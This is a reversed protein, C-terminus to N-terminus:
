IDAYSIKNDIIYVVNLNNALAELQISPNKVDLTQCVLDLRAQQQNEDLDDGLPHRPKQKRQEWRPMYASRGQVFLILESATFLPIGKLKEVAEADFRHLLM